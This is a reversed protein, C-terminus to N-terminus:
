TVKKKRPLFRSPTKHNMMDTACQCSYLACHAEIKVGNPYSTEQWHYCDECHYVEQPQRRKPTQKSLHELFAKLEEKTAQVKMEEPM